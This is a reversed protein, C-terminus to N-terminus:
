KQYLLKIGEHFNGTRTECLYVGSASNGPTWRLEHLGKFLWGDILTDVGQGDLAYVTIKV